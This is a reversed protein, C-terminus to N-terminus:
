ILDQMVLPRHQGKKHKSVLETDHVVPADKDVYRNGCTPCILVTPDEKPAVLLAHDYPCVANALNNSHSYVNFPRLPNKDM